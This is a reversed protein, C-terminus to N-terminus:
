GGRRGGGSESSRPTSSSNNSRSPASENGRSPAPEYSRSPAPEYSRSPTRDQKPTDFMRSPTPESRPNDNNRSPASREPKPSFSPKPAGGEDTQYRTPKEDALRTPRPSSSGEDSKGPLPASDPNVRITRTPRSKPPENEDTRLTNDNTSPNGNATPVVGDYKGGTRINKPKPATVGSGNTRPGYYVNKGPANGDPRGGGNWGGGNWGGGNWGGGNWGWGNWGSNWGGNWGWGNNCGWPDNYCWGGNWGNWNNWRNWRNWNNWGWGNNFGWGNNIVITTSNWYPDVFYVDTYIPDYYNFGRYPNHFRRLRTTYYYDDRDDEEYNNRQRDNEREGQQVEKPLQREKTPVVNTQLGDTAPDFYLDDFQAQSSFSSGLLFVFLFLKTWKM